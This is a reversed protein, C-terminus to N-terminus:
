EVYAGGLSNLLIPASTPRPTPKPRSKIQNAPVSSPLATGLAARRNSSRAVLSNHAAPTLDTDLVASTSSQMREPSSAPSATKTIEAVAVTASAKAPIPAPAGTAM